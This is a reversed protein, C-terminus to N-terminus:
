IFHAVYFGSSIRSESNPHGIKAQQSDSSANRTKPEAGVILTKLLISKQCRHHLPAIRINANLKEQQQPVSIFLLERNETERSIAINSAVRHKAADRCDAKKLETFADEVSGTLPMSYAFPVIIGSCEGKSM